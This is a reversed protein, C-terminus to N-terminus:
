WAMHISPWIHTRSIGSSLSIYSFWIHSSRIFSLSIQDECHAISKLLQFLLRFFCEPKSPIRVWSRAIGTCHELWMSLYDITLEHYARQYHFIHVHIYMFSIYNTWRNGVKYEPRAKIQDKWVPRPLSLDGGGGGGGAETEGLYNLSSWRFRTPTYCTWFHIKQRIFWSVTADYAPSILYRNGFLRRKLDAM